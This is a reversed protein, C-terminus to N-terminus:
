FRQQNIAVKERVATPIDIELVDALRLLYIQVDAIEMAIASVQAESLEQMESEKATLWQFEAVLEGAEGALAMALNKPTHFKEWNREAAFVRLVEALSEFENM